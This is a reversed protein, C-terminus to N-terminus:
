YVPRYIGGASRACHLEYIFEEGVILICKSGSSHLAPRVKSVIEYPEYRLIAQVFAVSCDCRVPDVPRCCNAFEGLFVLEAITMSGITPVKAVEAVSGLVGAASRTAPGEDEDDEEDEDDDEDDDEDGGGGGGGMSSMGGSAMKMAEDRSYVSGKMGSGQAAM